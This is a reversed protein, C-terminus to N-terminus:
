MFTNKVMDSIWTYMKWVSEWFLMLVCLPILLPVSLLTTEWCQRSKVIIKVLRKGDRKDLLLPQFPCGTTCKPSSDWVTIPPFPAYSSTTLPPTNLYGTQAKSPPSFFFFSNMLIDPPTEGFTLPGILIDSGIVSDKSALSQVGFLLLGEKGSLSLACWWERGSNFSRM